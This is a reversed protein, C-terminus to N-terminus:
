VRAGQAKIFLLFSGFTLYMVDKRPLKPSFEGVIHHSDEGLIVSNHLGTLAPSEFQQKVSVSM